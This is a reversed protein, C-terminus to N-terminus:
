SASPSGAPLPQGAVASGTILGSAARIITTEDAEDAQFEATLRGEHMVLIRDAMGLIEPLESSAFVIATGEDTLNRLLQYIEAKAGVDIGRTPEDCLLIRPRLLLWKALAVKQQNGGSLQRVRRRLSGRLQVEEALTTGAKRATQGDVLGLRGPLFVSTLNRLVSLRLALSELRRDESIMAMGLRIADRPSRITVQAGDLWLSGTAAPDAGFMARLVSTRGAGILGALGVIEGRSVALNVDRFLGPSSLNTVVLRHQARPGSAPRVPFLHRALDRGVMSQVLEEPTTATVAMTSVVHGDRLVTVRDAIRFVEDLRHTVYLVGVGRMPLSVLLQLLREEDQTPLASTPEDMIVLSARQSLARALEVLQRDAVSLSWVPSRPDIATIGLEALLASCNRYLRASDVIPGVLRPERGLYVNQAVDLDEVLSLEQYVAAIGHHQADGPSALHVVRGDLEVVGADPPFVGSIIQILTSKGAGNEGVLAHIEGARVTLDVGDLAIVGGFRKHLGRVQLLPTAAVPTATV